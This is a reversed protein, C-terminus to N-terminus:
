LYQIVQTLRNTLKPKPKKIEPERNSENETDSDTEYKYVIKPKKPKNPKYKVNELEIHKLNRDKISILETPKTRIELGSESDESDESDSMIKGNNVTTPPNYNFCKYKRNIHTKYHGLQNFSKNCNECIYEKM